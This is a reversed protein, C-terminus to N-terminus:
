SLEFSKCFLLVSREALEPSLHDQNPYGESCRGSAEDFYACHPCSFRLEFRKAERRLREDVPTRM